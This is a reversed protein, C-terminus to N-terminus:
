YKQFLNKPSFYRRYKRYVYRYKKKDFKVYRYVNQTDNSMEVGYEAQTINEPNRTLIRNTKNLEEEKKFKAKNQAYQYASKIGIFSYYTIVLLLFISGVVVM